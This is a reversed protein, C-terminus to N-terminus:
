LLQPIVRGWHPNLIPFLREIASKMERYEHTAKSTLRAATTASVEHEMMKALHLKCDASHKIIERCLKAQESRGHPDALKQARESILTCNRWMTMTQESLLHEATIKSLDVPRISTIISAFNTGQNM